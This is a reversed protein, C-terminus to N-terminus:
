SIIFYIFDELSNIDLYECLCVGEKEVYDFIDSRIEYSINSIKEYEDESYKEYEDEYDSENSEINM